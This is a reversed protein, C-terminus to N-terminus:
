PAGAHDTPLEYYMPERTEPDYYIGGIRVALCEGSRASIVRDDLVYAWRVGDSCRILEKRQAFAFLAGDDFRYIALRDAGNPEALEREIAM